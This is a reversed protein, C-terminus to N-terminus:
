TTGFEHGIKRMKEGTADTLETPFPGLRVSLV